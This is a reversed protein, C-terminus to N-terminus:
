QYVLRRGVSIKRNRILLNQNFSAQTDNVPFIEKVQNFLFRTSIQHRGLSYDMNFQADHEKQLEPSVITLTGSPFRRPVTLSSQRSTPPSSRSSFGELCKFSLSDVALGQSAALGAATPAEFTTPAGAGHLDTYEYAGFVFLKNKMIPGGITDGSATTMM